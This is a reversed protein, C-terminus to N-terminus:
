PRLQPFHPALDDLLQERYQAQLDQLEAQAQSFDALRLAHRAGESTAEMETLAVARAHEAEALGFALAQLAPDSDVAATFAPLDTPSFREFFGTAFDSAPAHIVVFRAYV